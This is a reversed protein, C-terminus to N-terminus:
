QAERAQNTRRSLIVQAERAQNTRRSFIGAARPARAKGPPSRRGGGRGGWFPRGGGRGTSPWGLRWTMPGQGIRDLSLCFRWIFSRTATRLVLPHLPPTSPTYLPHLLASHILSHGNAACGGMTYIIYQCLPFLIGRPSNPGYGLGTVMHTSRPGM